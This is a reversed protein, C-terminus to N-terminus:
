GKRKEETIRSLQYIRSQL